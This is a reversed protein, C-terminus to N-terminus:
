PLTDPETRQPPCASTALAALHYGFSPTRLALGLHSHMSEKPNAKKFFKKFDYNIFCFVLAYFSSSAAAPELHM